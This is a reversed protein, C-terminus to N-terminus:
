MHIKPQYIIAYFHILSHVILYVECSPQIICLNRPFLMVIDDFCFTVNLLLLLSAIFCLLNSCLLIVNPILTNAWYCLVISM